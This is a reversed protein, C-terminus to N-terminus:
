TEEKLGNLSPKPPFTSAEKKQHCINNFNGFKQMRKKIEEDRKRKNEM